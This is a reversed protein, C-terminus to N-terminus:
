NQEIYLAMRPDTMIVNKVSDFTAVYNENRGLKQMDFYLTLKKLHNYRYLWHFMATTAPFAILHANSTVFLSVALVAHPSLLKILPWNNSKNTNPKRKPAQNETNFYRQSTLLCM